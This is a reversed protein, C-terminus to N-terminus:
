ASRVMKNEFIKLDFLFPVFFTQLSSSCVIIDLFKHLVFLIRIRIRICYVSGSGYVIYPDPDLLALIIRIWSSGSGCCQYCDM